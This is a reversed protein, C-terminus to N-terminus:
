FHIGVGAYAGAVTTNTPAGGANRANEGSYGADLYVGSKGLNVTLGGKYKLTHYNIPVTTGSIPGLLPTTPYTFNGSVMPYYFVSGYISIPQDLDPLKSLGFGAGSLTPYGLYNYWKWYYGAGIYVRPDFIKIGLHVDVDDENAPFARVYGQSIGLKAQVNLYDPGTVCGPDTSPCLGPYYYYGNGINTCIPGPAGACSFNANHQYATHRYDGDLALSTGGVPFEFGAQLMYSNKGSNGPSLENYVAPSFVYDGAIFHDYYRPTPTPVPPPPPLPPPPPPRPAPTFYPPPPPRMPPPPLPPPPPPPAGALYRVVVVRRDPVWQVYAGMGESIVRVPVLIDGRYLEPPVDIARREGNFVVEPIGVTLRLSAGPKAVIVTRSAPDWSVTAGTQEFMSRLPVMIINHRVLAALVRSYHLRDTAYVHHDNFLIPIEGSPPTGFDAPPANQAFAPVAVCLVVSAFLAAISRSRRLHGIV